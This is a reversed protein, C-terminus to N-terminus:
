SKKANKGLLTLKPTKLWLLTRPAFHCTQRRPNKSAFPKRRGFHEKSHEGFLEECKDGLGNWPDFNYSNNVHRLWAFGTRLFRGMMDNSNPHQKPKNKKKQMNKLDSRAKLDCRTGNRKAVHFVDTTIRIEM